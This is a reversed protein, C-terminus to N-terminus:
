NVHKGKLQGCAADIDTGKEARIVTDIGKDRLINAFKMLYERKPKEYGAPNPNVPIINVMSKLNGILETLKIADEKSDNFGKIAIYEFTVRKNTKEQYIECAQMLEEVPYKTNIPMLQDRQYNTPAHLSVSLRIEIDLNGLEEIKDAIGSTSITIHRAGLNRMKKDNLNLISNVVNDYNLLPEGMGMYVINNIRRDLYKEITLVQSIIEGGTMNRQFGLKGTNCFTCKLACGVQSSICAAIRNPYYLVVSEVLAGDDLKFLFKTTEDQKSKQIDMIEPNSITYNESLKNRADISLNTMEEFNFVHKNYIWDLIQDTRFTKFNLNEQLHEKLDKYSFNLIDNKFM